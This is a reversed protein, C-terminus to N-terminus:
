EIILARKGALVPQLQHAREYLLSLLRRELVARPPRPASSVALTVEAPGALFSFRDSYQTVGVAGFMYRPAIRRTRLALVRLGPLPSALSETGNAVKTRTVDCAHAAFDRKQEGVSHMVAVKSHLGEAPLRQPDGRNTSFVPSYLDFREGRDSVGCGGQPTLEFDVISGNAEHGGRFSHMEPVDSPRLNVAHAFAIAEGRTTRHDKSAGCGTLLAAVTAGTLVATLHQMFISRVLDLDESM